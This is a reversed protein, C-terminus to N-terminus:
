RAHPTDATLAFWARAAADSNAGYANVEQVYIRALARQGDTAFEAHILTAAIRERYDATPPTYPTATRM